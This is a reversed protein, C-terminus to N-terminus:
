IPCNDHHSAQHWSTPILAINNLSYDRDNNIRHLHMEKWEFENELVWAELESGTFRLSIGRMGYRYFMKARECSCRYRIRRVQKMCWGRLTAEYRETAARRHAKGNDTQNYRKDIQTKTM